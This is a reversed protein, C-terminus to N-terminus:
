SGSSVALSSKPLSAPGLATSQLRTPLPVSRTKPLRSSSSQRPHALNGRPSKLCRGRRFSCLPICWLTIATSWRQRGSRCPLTLSHRPSCGSLYRAHSLLSSCTCQAYRRRLFHNSPFPHRRSCGLCGNGSDVGKSMCQAMWAIKTSGRHGFSGDHNELITSCGLSGGVPRCCGLRKLGTAAMQLGRSDHKTDTNTHCSCSGKDGEM